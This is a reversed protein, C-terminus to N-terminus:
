GDSGRPSPLDSRQKPVSVMTVYNTKGSAVTRLILGAVLSVTVVGAKGVALRPEDRTVLHTCTVPSPPIRGYPHLSLHMPIISILHLRRAQDGGANHLTQCVERSEILKPRHGAISLARVKCTPLKSWFAQRCPHYPYNNCQCGVWTSINQLLSSISYM